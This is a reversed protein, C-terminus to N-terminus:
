TGLGPRARGPRTRSMGWRAERRGVLVVNEDRVDDGAEAGGSQEEVDEGPQELQRLNRVDLEWVDQLRRSPPGSNHAPGSYASM